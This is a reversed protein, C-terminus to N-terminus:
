YRSCDCDCTCETSFDARQIENIIGNGIHLLILLLALKFWNRKVFELVIFSNKILIEKTKQKDFEFNM